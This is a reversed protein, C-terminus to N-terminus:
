PQPPASIGLVATAGLVAAGLAVECLVSGLLARPAGDGETGDRSARAEGDLRPRLVCLNWAGFALMVAFLSSKVALVQGYPTQWVERLDHLFFCANALGTIGLAAVAVVSASSFRRTACAVMRRVEPVDRDARTRPRLLLLAFPVLGGPWVMAAALHALDVCLHCTALPGLGPGAAAHGTFALTVTLAIALLVTAIDLGRGVPSPAGSRKARWLAVGLASGLTLRLGAVRGFGTGTLVVGVTPLDWDAMEGATLFVWVVGSVAAVAWAVWALADLRAALAGRWVRVEIGEGVGSSPLLTTRAVESSALLLCAAWHLARVLILPLNM